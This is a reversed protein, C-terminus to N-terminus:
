PLTLTNGSIPDRFIIRSAPDLRQPFVVLVKHHALKASYTVFAQIDGRQFLAQGLRQTPAPNSPKPIARMQNRYYYGEWDGTLEQVTTGLRRRTDRRTLDVVRNLSVRVNIIGWQRRLPSAALLGPAMPTGLLARVELLAVLHNEATYFIEMGANGPNFRTRVTATHSTNLLSGWYQPLIARYWSGRAPRVSVNAVQRLNM